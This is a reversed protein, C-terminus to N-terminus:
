GATDSKSDNKKRELMPKKNKVVNKEDDERLDLSEIYSELLSRLDLKIMKKKQKLLKIHKLLEKAEEKASEVIKEANLEAERIIIQAEREANNRLEGGAKQASLLAQKLSKEMEQFERIQEEFKVNDNKLSKYETYIRNYEDAITHMFEDVEEPSYGRFGKTFVRKRIDLPTIRM